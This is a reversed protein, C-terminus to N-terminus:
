LKERGLAIYFERIMETHGWMEKVAVTEGGLSSKVHKRTFKPAWQLNYAPGTLTSSMLGIAYGLHCRGDQAHTGFAGYFRCM